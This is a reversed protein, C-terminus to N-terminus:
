AETEVDMLEAQEENFTVDDPIIEDVKDSIDVQGSPVQSTSAEPIILDEPVITAPKLVM